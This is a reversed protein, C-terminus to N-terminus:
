VGIQRTYGLLDSAENIATADVETVRRGGPYTTEGYASGVVRHLLSKLQDREAEVEVKAAFLADYLHADMPDKFRETM